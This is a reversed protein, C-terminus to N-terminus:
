LLVMLPVSMLAPVTVPPMAMSELVMLPEILTLPGTPDPPRKMSLALLITAPPLATTTPPVALVPCDTVTETKAPPILM